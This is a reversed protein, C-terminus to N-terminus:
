PSGISIGDVIVTKGFVEDIEDHRSWNPCCLFDMLEFYTELIGTNLGAKGTSRSKPTPQYLEEDKQKADIKPANRHTKQFRHNKNSKKGGIPYLLM